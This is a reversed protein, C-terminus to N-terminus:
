LIYYLDVPTTELFNEMDEASVGSDYYDHILQAIVVCQSRLQNIQIEDVPSSLTPIVDLIELVHRINTKRRYANREQTPQNREFHYITWVKRNLKHFYDIASILYLTGSLVDDTTSYSMQLTKLVDHYDHGSFRERVADSGCGTKSILVILISVHKRIELELNRISVQRTYSCMQSVRRLDKNVMALMIRTRSMDCLLREQERIERERQFVAAVDKLAGPVYMQLRRIHEHTREVLTDHEVIIALAAEGPSGAAHKCLAIGQVLGTLDRPSDSM